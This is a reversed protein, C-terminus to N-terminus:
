LLVNRTRKKHEQKLQSIRATNLAIVEDEYCYLDNLEKISDPSPFEKELIADFEKRRKMEEIEDELEKIRILTLKKSNNIEKLQKIDM